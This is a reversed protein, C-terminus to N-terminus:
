AERRSLWLKEMNVLEMGEEILKQLRRRPPFAHIGWTLDGSELLTLKGDFSDNVDYVIGVAKFQYTCVYRIREAAHYPHICEGEFRQVTM